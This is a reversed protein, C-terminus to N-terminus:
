EDNEDSEYKSDLFRQFAEIELPTLETIAIWNGNLDKHVHKKNVTMSTDTIQKIRVKSM